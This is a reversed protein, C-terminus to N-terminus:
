RMVRISDPMQDEAADEGQAAPADEANESAKKRWFRMKTPISGLGKITMTEPIESNEILDAAVNDDESKPRHVLIHVKGVALKLFSTVVTSSGGPKDAACRTDLKKTAETTAEISVISDGRKIPGYCPGEKNIERVVPHPWTASSEITLGLSTDKPKEVLVTKLVGKRLVGVRIPGIAKKLMTQTAAEALTSDGKYEIHTALASNLAVIKDGSECRLSRASLSYASSSPIM